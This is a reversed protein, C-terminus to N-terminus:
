QRICPGTRKNIKSKKVMPDAKNPNARKNIKSKKVNPVNIPIPDKKLAPSYREIFELSLLYRESKVM